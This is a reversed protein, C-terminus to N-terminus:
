GQRDLLVRATDRILGYSWRAVLIAGMIGIVSGALERWFAQGGAAGNIALM